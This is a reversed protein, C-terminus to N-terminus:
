PNDTPFFEFLIEAVEKLDEPANQVLWATIDAGYRVQDYTYRNKSLDKFLDNLLRKGHVNKRWNDIDNPPPVNDKEFYEVRWGNDQIWRSLDSSKLAADSFDKLQSIVAAIANPNILYNEYMRRPLFRVKGGSVKILEQQEPLSRGERDFVFGIAPPLIVGGESLKKYIHMVNASLRGELDGVNLVALIATGLLPKNIIKSVILPFSNEETSGEVWLVNDAGFVDSLRSGIEALLLRLDKTQNKDIQILRTTTNEKRLLIVQEPNSVSVVLPSHTTAIYQHQSFSQRLIGFLKRIAAPHLFSQPEDIIITRPFDSTIAVYLIAMVQGVGTGSDQLPIALDERQTTKDVQWLHIKAIGANGRMPPVTIYKIDPFIAKVLDIFLEYRYANSTQLLQLVQALNRADPQLVPDYGVNHQGVNFREARFLYIIQRIQNALMNPLMKNEDYSVNAVTLKPPDSLNQLHFQFGGNPHTPMAMELISSSVFVNSQFVAELHVEPFTFAQLVRKAQAEHNVSRDRGINFDRGSNLILQRFEDQPIVVTIKLISAPSAPPGGAVPITEMSRHPKDEFQMSLAEVLATKGTNNSGVVINFGPLLQIDQTTQFSKYNTIAFKQIHM